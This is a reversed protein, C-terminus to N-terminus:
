SGAPPRGTLPDLGEARLAAWATALGRLARGEAGPEDYRYWFASDM